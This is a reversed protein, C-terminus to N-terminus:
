NRLPDAARELFERRRCTLRHGGVIRRDPFHYSGSCMGQALIQLAVVQQLLLPRGKPFRRNRAAPNIPGRLNPTGDSM